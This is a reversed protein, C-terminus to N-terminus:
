PRNKGLTCLLRISFTRQHRYAFRERRYSSPRKRGWFVRRFKSGSGFPSKGTPKSKSGHQSPWNKNHLKEQEEGEELDTSPRNYTRFENDATIFLRRAIFTISWYIGGQMM